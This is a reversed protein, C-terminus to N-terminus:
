QCLPISFHRPHYTKIEQQSWISLFVTSLDYFYKDLFLVPDPSFVFANTLYDEKCVCVCM